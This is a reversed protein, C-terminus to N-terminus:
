KSPELIKTSKRVTDVVGDIMSRSEAGADERHYMGFLKDASSVLLDKIANMLFKQSGTKDNRANYIMDSYYLLSEAVCLKFDYSEKLRRTARFEAVSFYVAYLAPFILVLRTFLDSDIVVAMGITSTGTTVPLLDIFLSQGLDTLFWISTAIGAAWFLSFWLLEDSKQKMRREFSSVHEDMSKIASGAEQKTKKM